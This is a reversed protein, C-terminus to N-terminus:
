FYDIQYQTAQFAQKFNKIWAIYLLILLHEVWNAMMPTIPASPWYKSLHKLHNLITITVIVLKNYNGYAPDDDDALMWDAKKMWRQIKVFIYKRMFTVKFLLSKVIWETYKKKDNNNNNTRRKEVTPNLLIDHQANKKTNLDTMKFERYIKIHLFPFFISCTNCIM